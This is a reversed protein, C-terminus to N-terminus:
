AGRDARGYPPCPSFGPEVGGPNAPLCTGDAPIQAAHPGDYELVYLGSQADVYLVYGDHTIPYSFALPHTGNATPRRLPRGDPGYETEGAAGYSAWRVEEVPENVFRGVETPDAPDSVDIARLGRGYYTVFVVDPFALPFHPSTWGPYAVSGNAWVDEDCNQERQVPVVYRGVFSLRGGRDTANSEAEGGGETANAGGEGDGETAHGEVRALRIAGGPCDGLRVEGTESDVEPGGSETTALVYPRDPVPLLTHHWGDELAPQAALDDGPTPDVTVLCHGSLSGNWPSDPDCDEGGRLRERPRTADLVLFGVDPQAVYIRGGEASPVAEHSESGIRAQDELDWRAVASPDCDDPCGTLDVVTVDPWGITTQVAVLRDPDTPDRWLRLAHVARDGADYRAVLQPRRCDGSVDYVSFGREPLGGPVSLGMGELPARHQVVLVDGSAQIGEIGNGVGPVADPVPGVVTPDTPDAVDVVLPPQYGVLSGVYACDGSATLDGNSGRPIGLSEADGYQHADRLPAHGVLELSGGTRNADTADPPRATTPDPPDDTRADGTENGDTVRDGELIGAIPGFSAYALGVVAIVVLVAVLFRVSTKSSDTPRVSM